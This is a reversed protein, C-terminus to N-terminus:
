DSSRSVLNFIYKHDQHIFDIVIQQHQRSFKSTPSWSSKLLTVIASNTHHNLHWLHLKLARIEAFTVVFGVFITINVGVYPHSTTVLRFIPIDFFPNIHRLNGSSPFPQHRHHYDINNRLHSLSSNFDAVSAPVFSLNRSRFFFSKWFRKIEM